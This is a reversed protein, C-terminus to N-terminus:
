NWSLYRGSWLTICDHSVPIISIFTAPEIRPPLEQEQVYVIFVTKKQLWLLNITFIVGVRINAIKAWHALFIFQRTYQYVKSKEFIEFNHFEFFYNDIMYDVKKM